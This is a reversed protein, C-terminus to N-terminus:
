NTLCLLTFLTKNSLCYLRTDESRTCAPWHSLVVPRRIDRRVVKPRQLLLWMMGVCDAWLYIGREKCLIARKKKKKELTCIKLGVKVAITEVSHRHRVQWGSCTHTQSIVHFIVHSYVSVLTLWWIVVDPQAHVCASKQKKFPRQLPPYNNFFFIYFVILFHNSEDKFLQWM